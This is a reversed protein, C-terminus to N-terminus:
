RNRLKADLARSVGKQLLRQRVQEIKQGTPTPTQNAPTDETEPVQSGLPSVVDAFRRYLLPDSALYFSLQQGVQGLDTPLKDETTNLLTSLGANLRARPDIPEDAALMDRGVLDARMAQDFLHSFM